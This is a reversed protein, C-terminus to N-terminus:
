RDRCVSENGGVSASSSEIVVGIADRKAPGRAEAIGLAILATKLKRFSEAPVRITFTAQRRSGANGLIESKAIYAKYEDLLQEVQGVAADLDKVVVTLQGSYIIKREIVDAGPQPAETATRGAVDKPTSQSVPAYALRSASEAQPKSAGGGCGIIGLGVVLFSTALHRKSIAVNM